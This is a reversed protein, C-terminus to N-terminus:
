GRYRCRRATRFRRAPRNRMSPRAILQERLRSSRRPAVIAELAAHGGCRRPRRGGCSSLYGHGGSDYQQADSIRHQDLLPRGLDEIPEILRIWHEHWERAGAPASYMQAAALVALWFLVKNKMLRRRM